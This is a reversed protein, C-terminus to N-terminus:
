CASRSWRRFTRATQRPHPMTRSRSRPLGCVAVADRSSAAGAPPRCGGGTRGRGPAGPSWRWGPPSRGSPRPGPRRVPAPGTRRVPAPRSGAGPGTRGGSGRPARGASPGPPPRGDRGREGRRGRCEACGRRIVDGSRAGPGAAPVDAPHRGRPGGAPTAPDGRGAAGGDGLDPRPHVAPRPPGHARRRLRPPSPDRDPGPPPVGRGPRAAPERPGAAPDPRPGAPPPHGGPAPPRRGVGPAVAAGVGAARAPRRGPRVPGDPRGPGLRAAAAPCRPRRGTRRPHPTLRALAHRHVDPRTITPHPRRM